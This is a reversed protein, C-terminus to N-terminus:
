RHAQVSPTEDCAMKRTITSVLADLSAASGFDLYHDCYPRAVQMGQVQPRYDAAAAHPDCWIVSAMAHRLRRMADDLLEPEGVDWGDSLVLAITNPRIGGGHELETIFRQVCHGIRTGGALAAEQRGLWAFARQRDTRRFVDTVILLEVNFVAAEVDRVLRTLAHVFALFLPVSPRMSASIDCLVALHAREHRRARHRLDFLEEGFRLNSRLSARLDITDGRGGIAYRRSPSTGLTRALRRALAEIERGGTLTVTGTNGPERSHVARRAHLGEDPRRRSQSETAAAHSEPPAGSGPQTSGDGGAETLDLSEANNHSWFTDFVVDFLARDSVSSTLSCALASRFDTRSDIRVHTLARTAALSATPAVAVDIQQLLRGFVVVDHTLEGTRRTRARDAARLLAQRTTM